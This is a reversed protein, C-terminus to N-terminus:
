AQGAPEQDVDLQAFNDRQGALEVTHGAGTELTNMGPKVRAAIYRLVDPAVSWNAPRGDPWAHFSPQAAILRDVAKSM